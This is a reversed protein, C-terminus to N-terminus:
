PIDLIAQRGTFPEKTNWITDWAWARRPAADQRYLALDRIGRNANGSRERKQNELWRIWIM